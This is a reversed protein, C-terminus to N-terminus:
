GRILVACKSLTKPFFIYKQTLIKGSTFSVFFNLLQFMVELSVEIIINKGRFACDRLFSSLFCLCWNGRKKNVAKGEKSIQKNQIYSVHLGTECM